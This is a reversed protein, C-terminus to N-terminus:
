LIELSLKKANINVFYVTRLKGGWKKMQHKYIKFWYEFPNSRIEKIKRKHPRNRYGKSTYRLEWGPSSKKPLSTVIIYPVSEGWKLYPKINKSPIRADSSNPSEYDVVLLPRNESDRVFIDPQFKVGGENIRLDSEVIAVNQLGWVVKTIYGITRPHTWNKGTTTYQFTDYFGDPVNQIEKSLGKILFNVIKPIKM